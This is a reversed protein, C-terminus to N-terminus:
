TLIRRSRILKAYEYIIIKVEKHYFLYQSVEDQANKYIHDSATPIEM